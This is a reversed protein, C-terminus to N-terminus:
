GRNRNISFKGLYWSLAFGLVLLGLSVLSQLNNGLVCTENLMNPIMSLFIGFIVSFSATYFRRFLWSMAFSIAVAGAALGGAMPILIALDVNALAAVYM